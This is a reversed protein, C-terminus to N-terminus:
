QLIRRYKTEEFYKNILCKPNEKLEERLAIYACILNRIKRCNNLSGRPVRAILPIM